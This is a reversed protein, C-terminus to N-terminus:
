WIYHGFFQMLVAQVFVCWALLTRDGVDAEKERLYAAVPFMLYPYVFSCVRATEGTRFAGTLFMVGLTALGTVSVVFLDRSQRRLARFGHWCALALFPGFFLVLEAVNEARTVLYELPNRLLRFGDPNELSSAVLFSQFYNFGFVAYLVTLFALLGALVLGSRLIAKRRMVGFLVIVPLIYLFAFTLMSAAILCVCTGLVAM